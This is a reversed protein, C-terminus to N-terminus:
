PADKAIGNRRAYAVLAAEVEYPYATGQFGAAYRASTPMRSIVHEASEHRVGHMANLVRDAAERREFSLREDNRIALMITSIKWRNMTM